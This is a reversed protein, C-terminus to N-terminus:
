AVTGCGTPARTGHRAVSSTDRRKVVPGTSRARATAVACASSRTPSADGSVRGRHTIAASAAGIFRSRRFPTMNQPKHVSSLAASAPSLGFVSNPSDPERADAPPDPWTRWLVPGSRSMEAFHRYRGGGAWRWSRSMEAPLASPAPMSKDPDSARVQGGSGSAPSRSM